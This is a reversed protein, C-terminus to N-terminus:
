MHFKTSVLQQIAQQIVDDKAHEIARRKCTDGVFSGVLPSRVDDGSFPALSLFFFLFNRM